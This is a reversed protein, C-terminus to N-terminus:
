TLEIDFQAADDTMYVLRFSGDQATKDRSIHMGLAEEYFKISKELDTVNINAHIFRFNM